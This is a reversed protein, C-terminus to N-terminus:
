TIRECRYARFLGAAYSREELIRLKPQEQQSVPPLILDAVNQNYLCGRGGMSAVLDATVDQYQGLVPNGSRSNELLLIQGSPRVVRSMQDICRRAGENGMVCLSFADIVTDFSNVGFERVLDTTADAKVIRILVNSLNSMSAVRTKAEHLMGDSIDVLTLSTIRHHQQQLGANYYPLNLGTGVGIELVDGDARQVLDQRARDLKLTSAVFPAGDLADYTSAYMDYQVAADTPSLAHTPAPDFWRQLVATNGVGVVMGRLVDRRSSSPGADVDSGTDLRSNHFHQIGCDHHEICSISTKMGGAKGGVPRITLAWSSSAMLIVVAIARLFLSLRSPSILLSTSSFLSGPAVPDQYLDSAASAARYHKSLVTVFLSRSKTTAGASEHRLMKDAFTTNLHDCLDHLHKRRDKGVKFEKQEGIRAAIAWTQLEQADKGQVANTAHPPQALIKAGVGGAAAPFLSQRATSSPVSSTFQAYPNLMTAPTVVLDPGSGNSPHHRRAEQVHGSIDPNKELVADTFLRGSDTLAFSSPGLSRLGRAQESWGVQNNRTVFGHNVLTKIGAWAGRPRGAYYNEETAEDCHPQGAQIIQAKSMVSTQSLRFAMLIAFAGGRKKISNAYPDNHYPNGGGGEGGEVTSSPQHPIHGPPFVPEKGELIKRVCLAVTKSLNAPLNVIRGTNFVYIDGRVSGVARWGANWTLASRKGQRRALHHERAQLADVLDSNWVKADKPRPM